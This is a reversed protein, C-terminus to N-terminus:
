PFWFCGNILSVKEIKAQNLEVVGCHYVVDYPDQSQSHNM